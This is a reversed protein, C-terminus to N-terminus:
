SVNNSGREESSFSKLKAGLTVRHTICGPEGTHAMKVEGVREAEYHAATLESIVMYQLRILTLVCM